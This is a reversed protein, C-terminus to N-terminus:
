VFRLPEIPEVHRPNSHRDRVIAGPSRTREFDRAYPSFRSVWPDAAVRGDTVYRVVERVVVARRARKMNKKPQHGFPMEIPSTGHSLSSHKISHVQESVEM